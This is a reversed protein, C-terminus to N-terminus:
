YRQILSSGGELHKLREEAEQRRPHDAPATSLYAKLLAIAKADVGNDMLLSGAFFPANLQAKDMDWARVYETVAENWRGKNNLANGLHYRVAGNRPAREVAANMVRIADDLRAKKNYALSLNIYCPVYDPKAAIAEEYAAVAETYKGQKYLDMGTKNLEEPTPM